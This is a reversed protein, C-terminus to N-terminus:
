GLEFLPEKVQKVRVGGTRSWEPDWCRRLSRLGQGDPHSVAAAYLDRIQRARAQKIRLAARIQDATPRDARVEGARVLCYLQTLLEDDTRRVRLPVVTAEQAEQAQQQEVEAALRAIVAGLVRQRIQVAVLASGVRPAPERPARRRPAPPVPAPPEPAPDAPAAPLAPTEALAAPTILDAMVRSAAAPSELDMAAIRGAWTMIQLGGLMAALEAQNEALGARDLAEQARAELLAERASVAWGLGWPRHATQARRLRWTARVAARRAREQRRQAVRERVRLTAEEAGMEEDSALELAVLVREVPHLWRVLALRRRAKEGAQERLWERDRRQEQLLFELGVAAIIPFLGYVVSAAAEDGGAPAHHSSLWAAIGVLTWLAPRIMGTAEGRRTRQWLTLALMVAVGDFAAFGLFAWLRPMGISLLWGVMTQASLGTVIAVILGFAVTMARARLWAAVQERRETSGTAAARM